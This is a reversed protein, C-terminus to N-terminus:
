MALPPLGSGLRLGTSCGRLRLSASISLITAKRVLRVLVSVQTAALTGQDEAAFPGPLALDRYLAAVACCAPGLANECRVIRVAPAVSDDHGGSQVTKLQTAQRSEDEIVVGSKVLIYGM